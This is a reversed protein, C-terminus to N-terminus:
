ELQRIRPTFILIALASLLFALASLIVAPPEGLYEAATGIWLGGIPTLGFFILTYFGMVRGRLEDPCLLQVLSNADNLILIMAGGAAMAALMSLPTWRMWAFLLVTFPLAVMGTQLLRGKLKLRSLSAVVLASALAGVGRASQLLGNTAANGGLVRVAWAPILTLFSNGFLATVGVIGILTRISPQSLSFSLGEKLEALISGGGPLIRPRKLRMLLLAAIVALFSLGNILFCWAPGLISYTIGAAAPGVATATNFMTSNLAIANALDEREVMELVFSQRAPADFATILGTFAALLLIHWPRVAGCFALAALIFALLMFLSQTLVLLSRRPVRDAIVGGYLIFLWTPAGTAFAVYGLYAPSHTLQFILFGQATTQMWTGFLSFMQGAFWRRYNPYKLSTFTRQFRSFSKIV